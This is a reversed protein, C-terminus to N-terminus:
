VCFEGSMEQHMRSREDRQLQLERALRRFSYVIITKIISLDDFHWVLLSSFIIRLESQMKSKIEGKEWSRISSKEWEGILM